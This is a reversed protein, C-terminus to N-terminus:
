YPTPPVSATAPHTCGPTQERDVAGLVIGITGIPAVADARM